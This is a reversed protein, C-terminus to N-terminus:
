FVCASHIKCLIPGQLQLCPGFIGGSIAKLTGDFQEQVFNTETGTMYDYM